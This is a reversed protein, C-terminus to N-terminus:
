RPVVGGNQRLCKQFAGIAQGREVISVAMALTLYNYPQACARSEGYIKGKIPINDENM